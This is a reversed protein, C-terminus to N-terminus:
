RLKTLSGPEKSVTYMCSHMGGSSISHSVTCTAFPSHILEQGLEASIKVTCTRAFSPELARPLSLWLFSCSSQKVMLALVLVGLCLRHLQFLKVPGSEVAQVGEPQLM